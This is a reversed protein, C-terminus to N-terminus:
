FININTFSPIFAFAHKNEMLFVRAWIYLNKKLQFFIFIKMLIKKINKKNKNSATRVLVWLRHKPAFILFFLDVGANGLKAIYIHPKFLM